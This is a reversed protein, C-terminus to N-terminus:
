FVKSLTFTRGNATVTVNLVDQKKAKTVTNFSVTATASPFGPLLILGGTILQDLATSCSFGPNKGNLLVSCSFDTAVIDGDNAFTVEYTTGIPGIQRSALIDIRIAPDLVAGSQIGNIIRGQIREDDDITVHHDLTNHTADLQSKDFLFDPYNGLRYGSPLTTHQRVVYADRYPMPVDLTMLYADSSQDCGSYDSRKDLVTPYGCRTWDVPDVLVLQDPIVGNKRYLEEAFLRARNGGYSHGALFLHDVSPSFSMEEILWQYAEAHSEFPETPPSIPTLGLPRINSSAYFTFAKSIVTPLVLRASTVLNVMGLSTQLFGQPYTVPVADGAVSPPSNGFGTFTILFTRPVPQQFVPLPEFAMSYQCDIDPACGFSPWSNFLSVWSTQTLEATPTTGQAWVTAGRQRAITTYGNADFQVDVTYWDTPAGGGNVNPDLQYAGYSGYGARPDGATILILPPYAAYAAGAHTTTFHIHLYGGRYDATYNELGYHGDILVSDGFYQPVNNEVAYPNRLEADAMSPVATIFGVVLVACPVRMKTTMPLHDSGLRLTIRSSKAINTSALPV